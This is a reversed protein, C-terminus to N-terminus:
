KKLTGLCKNPIIFYFEAGGNKLNSVGYSFKHKILIEKSISLGIGMGGSSKNKLYRDWIDEIINESIGKGNDKVSVKVDENINEIDVQILTGGSHKVANEIFNCIVRYLYTEDGKILLSTNDLKNLVCIKINDDVLVNINKVCNEIVDILNINTFKMEINGEKIKSLQLIQFVLNNLRDVEEIISESYDEIEKGKVLGDAIAESYSRIISLPTKFDHSVNAIFEKQLNYKYSIEQSMKKISKALEEIEDGTKIDVKVDFNEKAIEESVVKLNVIPRTFREGLYIAIPLSILISIISIIGLILYIIEIYNETAKYNKMVVIDGYETARKYTLYKENNNTVLIDKTDLKDVDVKNLWRIQGPGFCHSQGEKKIVGLALSNDYKGEFERYEEEVQKSTEELQNYQEKIYVKGLLLTSFVYGLFMVLVTSLLFYKLIRKTIRNM